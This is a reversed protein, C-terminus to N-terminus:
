LRARLLLVVTTSLDRRRRPPQAEEEDDDRLRQPINYYPPLLTGSFTNSRRLSKIPRSDSTLAALFFIFSSPWAAGLSRPKRRREFFAHIVCWPLYM